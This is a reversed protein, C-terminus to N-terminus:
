TTQKEIKNFWQADMGDPRGDKGAFKSKIKREPEGKLHAVVFFKSYCDEYPHIECIVFIYGECGRWNTTVEDGIELTSGDRKKAIM